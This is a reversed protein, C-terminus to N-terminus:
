SSDQDHLQLFYKQIVHVHVFVDIGFSKDMFIFTFLYIGHVGASKCNGFLLIVQTDTLTLTELKQSRSDM